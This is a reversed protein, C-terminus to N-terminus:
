FCNSVLNIILYLQTLLVIMMSTVEINNSFTTLDRKLRINFKEGHAKFKLEVFQDQTVSRKARSHSAHLHKVDYSLTEYQSIYENLPKNAVFFHILTNLFIYNM